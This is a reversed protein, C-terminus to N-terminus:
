NVVSILLVQGIIGALEKPCSEVLAQRIFLDKNKSLSSSFVFPSCCVKPALWLNFAENSKIGDSENREEWELM